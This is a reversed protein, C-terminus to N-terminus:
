FLTKTKIQLSISGPSASFVFMRLFSIDAQWSQTWKQSTHTHTRASLTHINSDYGICKISSGDSWSILLPYFTCTSVPNKRKEDDGNRRKQTSDRSHQSQASVFSTYLSFWLRIWFKYHDPIQRYCLSVIARQSLAPFFSIMVNKSSFHIM